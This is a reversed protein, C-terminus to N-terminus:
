IKYYRYFNSQFLKGITPSQSYMFMHGVAVHLSALGRLGDVSKTDFEIRQHSM